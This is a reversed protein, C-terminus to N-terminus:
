LVAETLNLHEFLGYTYGLGIDKLCIYHIFLVINLLILWDFDVQVPCAPKLRMVPQLRARTENILCM